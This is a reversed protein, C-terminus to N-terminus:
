DGVLGHPSPKSPTHHNIIRVAGFSFLVTSSGFVLCTCVTVYQLVGLMCLSIYIGAYMHM